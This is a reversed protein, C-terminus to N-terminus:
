FRFESITITADSAIWATPTSALSLTSGTKGPVGESAEGAFPAVIVVEGGTSLQFEGVRAMEYSSCTEVADSKEVVTYSWPTIDVVESGIAPKDAAM